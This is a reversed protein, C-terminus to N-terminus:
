THLGLRQFTAPAEDFEVNPLRTRRISMVRLVAFIVALTALLRVAGGGQLAELEMRAFSSAGMVFAVVFPIGAAKIRGDPLYTCTFPVKEYGVTLAELLVIAGALGLAAHALARAPGLVYTFLPVCLLLAPVALGIIAARRAGALFARDRERWALQFGWNARLEAPVRIAHRFAILLAGYLLPQMVILRVPVRGARAAELDVGSLAILSMAIGAAAACAITLRHTNSRWMAALTFYFGARSTPNRVLLTRAIWGAVRWRRRRAGSASVALPPLRRNNLVYMGGIALAVGAFALASRRALMEFDGRHARYTATTAADTRRQRPTMVGRPAEAIIHGVALEYAGAFWAPPAYARWGDLGGQQLRTGAPPLLLLASGLVVVLAGQTWPSVQSFLRPGLLGALLERLALVALYACAAAGTSFLAHALNLTVMDGVTVPLHYVLLWPFIVSPAANVGIAVAAGLIGVAAMKARRITAPRLPFPELISTDRPDVTLSDWQSAAVLATIIMSLALYSFRDDFASLAAEGPTMPIGVYRFSSFLSMFLTLTVIGGGVVALMQARDADPSILDNELFTRLFHRTLVAHPTRSRGSPM